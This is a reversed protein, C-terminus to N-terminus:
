RARQRHLPSRATHVDVRDGGADVARREVGRQEVSRLSSFFKQQARRHAAESLELLKGARADKQSRFRGAEDVALDERHVAAKEGAADILLRSSGRTVLMSGFIVSTRTRSMRKGVESSM